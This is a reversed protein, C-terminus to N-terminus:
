VGDAEGPLKSEPPVGFRECLYAIDVDFEGVPCTYAFYDRSVYWLPEKKTPDYRLIWCYDGPKVYAIYHWVLSKALFFPRNRQNEIEERLASTFREAAEAPNAEGIGRPRRVANRAIAIAPPYSMGAELLLALENSVSQMGPPEPADSPWRVLYLAPYPSHSEPEDGMFALLESYINDPLAPEFGQEEGGDWVPAQRWPVFRYGESYFTM